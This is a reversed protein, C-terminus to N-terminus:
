LYSGSVAVLYWLYSSLGKVPNTLLGGMGRCVEGYAVIIHVDMVASFSAQFVSCVTDLLSM